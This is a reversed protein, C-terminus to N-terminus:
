IAGAAREGSAAEQRLPPAFIAHAEHWMLWAEPAARLRADLHAIYRAMVVAADAGAPLVEIALDRAGSNWDVGVSFLTVATGTEQAIRALGFPLRVPRGLLTGDVARQDAGVGLDLMGILSRGQALAQRITGASDGTFIVGMSGARRLTRARLAGYWTSLRSLGLSRGHPRRALFYAHIGHARLVRWIWNGTGWHYTLLLNAADAAPIQGRIALHRRWWRDSRLVTLYTDAHEVLLLLRAHRKWVREDAGPCLASASTWLSDVSDRHLFAIRACAKLLAFGARWPLLATCLPIVYLCLADSLARAPFRSRSAVM